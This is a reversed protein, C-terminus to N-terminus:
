RLNEFAIITNGNGIAESWASFTTQDVEPTM